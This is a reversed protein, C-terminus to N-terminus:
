LSQLRINVQSVRVDPKQGFSEVTVTGVYIAEVSLGTKEKFNCCAFLIADELEERLKTIEASKM